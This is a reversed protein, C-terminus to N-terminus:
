SQHFATHRQRGHGRRQSIDQLVFEIYMAPVFRCNCEFVNRRGRKKWNISELKKTRRNKRLKTFRKKPKSCNQCYHSSVVCLAERDMGSTIPPQNIPIHLDLHTHARPHILLFPEIGATAATTHLNSSRENLCWYVFVILIM